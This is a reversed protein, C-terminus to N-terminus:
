KKQAVGLMGITNPAIKEIKQAIYLVAIQGAAGPVGPIIGVLPSLTHLLMDQGYSKLRIGKFKAWLTVAGNGIWGLWIFSLLWSGFGFFILVVILEVLSIEKPKKGM